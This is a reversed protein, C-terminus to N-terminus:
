QRLWRREQTITTIISVGRKAGSPSAEKCVGQKKKTLLGGKAAWCRLEGGVGWGVKSGSGGSGREGSEGVEWRWGLGGRVM